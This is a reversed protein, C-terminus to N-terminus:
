KDWIMIIKGFDVSLDKEFASNIDDLSRIKIKEVVLNELYSVLLPYKEIIDLSRKFDKRGSRSNGYMIIGKELILRTDISIPYESVGLLSIVGQPNIHNIIQDIASQSKIGGVCELAHDVKLDPPIHNITYIEDAFTYYSLKEMNRGLVIVRTEPFLTKLLLSTIYGVTGDGWVGIVNRREHAFQDMRDIAHICVSILETFSAVYPSLDDNVKLLRHASTAVYDQLFGDFGSGRFKSSPLYNEVVVADEESPTNPIMVVMDGAKFNGSSDHIVKGIGEHILAMPLKEALIKPERSGQYYRQDAKCISLHTPRVIVEQKNFDVEEYTVEFLKPSVLRYITNIM